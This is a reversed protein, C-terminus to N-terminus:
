LPILDASLVVKNSDALLNLVIGEKDYELLIKKSNKTEILRKGTPSLVWGEEKKYRVMSAMVVYSDTTQSTSALLMIISTVIKGVEKKQNLINYLGNLSDVIIITQSLSAKVLIETLVIGLNEVTPQFLFVNTKLPLADSVTYGSYLLDLDLYLIDIEADQVLKSIFGAKLFPDDYLISNLRKQELLKELKLNSM